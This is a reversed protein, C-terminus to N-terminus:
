QKGRRKRRAAAALVRKVDHAPVSVPDAHKASPPNKKNVRPKRM